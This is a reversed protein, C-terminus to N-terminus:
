ESFFAVIEDMLPHSYVDKKLFDFDEVVMVEWTKDRYSMGQQRLLIKFVEQRRNQFMLAHVLYSKLAPKGPM